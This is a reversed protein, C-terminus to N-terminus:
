GPLIAVWDLLLACLPKGKARKCIYYHNETCLCETLNWGNRALEVCHIEGRNKPKDDDLWNVYVSDNFPTGDSWLYGGEKFWYILGIWASDNQLQSTLNNVFEMEKDNAISILNGGFGGCVRQAKM